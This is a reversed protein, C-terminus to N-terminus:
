NWNDSFDPIFNLSYKAIEKPICFNKVIEEELEDKNLLIRKSFNGSDLQTISLNRIVVSSHAGYKALLVNNLFTSSDRFSNAVVNSFDEIQREIPKATYGHQLKNNKYQEIRYHGNKNPPLLFYNYEGAPIEINENLFLPLPKIFPAAYGVDVLYDKCEINVINVLHVDPDNMDAGCLKVNYGLHKLLKNLYFNNSYCTGGFNNVVIGDIYLEFSPISKLSYNKFYYIKSINEFPIKTLHSSVINTLALLSPKEKELELIDLYKKYISNM